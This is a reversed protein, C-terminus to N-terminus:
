RGKEGADRDLITIKVPKDAIVGYVCGSEIEIILRPVSKGAKQYLASDRGWKLDKGNLKKLLKEDKTM